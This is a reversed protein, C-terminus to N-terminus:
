RRPRSPPPTFGQPWKTDADYYVNTLVARNLQARDLNAHGLDADTLDAGALDAGTLDAGSGNAADPIRGPGFYAGRLTARALDAGRLDAQAFNARSLDSESLNAGALDAVAFDSGALPLGLMNQGALDFEAFRRTGEPQGFARDRVFRLNELQVDHRNAALASQVERESRRDDVLKQGIVTGGVLLGGIILAMVVDRFWWHPDRVVDRVTLRKEPEEAVGMGWHQVM